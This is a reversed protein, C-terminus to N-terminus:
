GWPNTSFGDALIVYTNPFFQPKKSSYVVELQDHHDKQPFQQLKKPNKSISKTWASIFGQSNDVSHRFFSPLIWRRPFKGPKNVTLPFISPFDLNEMSPVTSKTGAPRFDIISTLINWKLMLSNWRSMLFFLNETCHCLAPISQGRFTHSRRGQPYELTIQISNRALARPHCQQLLLQSWTIYFHNLLFNGGEKLFDCDQGM